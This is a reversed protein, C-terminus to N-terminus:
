RHASGTGAKAPFARGAHPSRRVGVATRRCELEVRRRLDHDCGTGGFRQRSGQEAHEVGTIFDDHELRHVVAVARANRHSVSSRNGHQQRWIGVAIIHEVGGLQPRGDRRAGLQDEEIRRVIRGALHEGAVLQLQDGINDDFVVQNGDGVLHVLM